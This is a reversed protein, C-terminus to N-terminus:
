ATCATPPATITTSLRPRARAAQEVALAEEVAEDAADAAKFPRICKSRARQFKQPLTVDARVLVERTRSRAGCCGPPTGPRGSAM